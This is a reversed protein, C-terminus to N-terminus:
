ATNKKKTGKYQLALMTIDDSQPVSKSHNEVKQMIGSIMGEVPKNKLVILEQELTEDSFLENKKNMAETVGDTYMFLTDNPKLILKKSKYKSDEMAGVIIGGTRKMYAVSNNQVLLPLNHGCNVYYIEGTKVDLIGFFITVFMASENDRSLEHNVKEMIQSAKRDLPFSSLDSTRGLDSQARILTITVAMFLAAPVGKGSVDGIVFCLHDDDLFFFDYFDGGVDKAPKITAYIEFEDRKPFAPFIKPLFGMQIENAIKLESEVREKAATTETLKRIYEKLSHEMYLFSEALKGLEDKSKEPLLKIGSHIDEPASFDHTVLKNAYETLKNLPQSIRDVLVYTLIISFLFIIFMLSQQKIIVSKIRSSIIERDMGVHVYGAVGALIPTSVDIIEGLRKVNISTITTQEKEDRGGLLEEPIGPVFTHSIIDGEADVVFVYSVGTIRTFQDIVAQVTSADRNLLIEVSSSAISEAIAKGKSEYEDTLHENLSWAFLLSTAIAIVGFLAIMILLTKKFLKSIKM